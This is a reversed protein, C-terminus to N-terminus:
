NENFRNSNSTDTIIKKTRFTITQYGVSEVKGFLRKVVLM